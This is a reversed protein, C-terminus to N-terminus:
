NSERGLIVARYANRLHSYGRVSRMSISVLDSFGGILFRGAFLALVLDGYNLGGIALSFVFIGPLLTSSFTQNAIFIQNPLNWRRALVSGSVWLGNQLIESNTDSLSLDRNLRARATREQPFHHIERQAIGALVVGLVVVFFSLVLSEIPFIWLAVAFVVVALALNPVSRMALYQLRGVALAIRAPDSFEEREAGKEDTWEQSNSAKQISFAVTTISGAVFSVVRDRAVKLVVLAGLSVAAWLAVLSLSSDIGAVQGASLSGNSAVATVGFIEAILFLSVLQLAVYVASVALSKLFAKSSNQISHITLSILM